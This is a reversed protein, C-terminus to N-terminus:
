LKFMLVSTLWCEVVSAYFAVMSQKKFLFFKYCSFYIPPQARAIRKRMKKFDWRSYYILRWKRIMVVSSDYLEVVLPFCLLSIIIFIIVMSFMSWYLFWHIRGFARVSCWLLFILTLFMCLIGCAMLEDLLGKFTLHILRFQPYYFFFNQRDMRFIIRLIRMYTELGCLFCAMLLSITRAVEYTCPLLVILRFAWCVLITKGSWITPDPLFDRLIFYAADMNEFVIMFAFPFPSLFAIFMQGVATIGRIDFHSELGRVIRQFRKSLRRELDMLRNTGVVAEKTYRYSLLALYFTGSYATYYLLFVIYNAVNVCKRKHFRETVLLYGSTGVGHLLLMGMFCIWPTLKWLPTKNAKVQRTSKTATLPLRFMFAFLQGHVDFATLLLESPM